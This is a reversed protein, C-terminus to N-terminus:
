KRSEAGEQRAAREAEEKELEGPGAGKVSASSEWVSERMRETAWLAPQEVVRDRESRELLELLVRAAARERERV